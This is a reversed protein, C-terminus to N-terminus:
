QSLHTWETAPFSTKITLPFHLHKLLCDRYFQGFIRFMVSSNHMLWNCRYRDGRTLFHSCHGPHPTTYVASFSQRVERKSEAGRIFRILSTKNFEGLGNWQFHRIPQHLTPLNQRKAQENHVKRVSRASFCFKLWKEKSHPVAIFKCAVFFNEKIHKM